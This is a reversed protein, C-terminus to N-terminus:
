LASVLKYVEFTGKCTSKLNEVENPNLSADTTIKQTLFLALVFVIATALLTMPALILRLLIPGHSDLAIQVAALLAIPLILWLMMVLLYASLPPSM